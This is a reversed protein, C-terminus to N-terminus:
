SILALRSYSREPLEWLQQICTLPRCLAKIIIPAAGMEAEIIDHTVSAKRRIMHGIMSVLPRELDKRNKQKVLVQNGHIQGVCM